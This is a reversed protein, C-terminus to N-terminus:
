ILDNKLSISISITNYSAKYWLKTQGAEHCKLNIKIFKRSPFSGLKGLCALKFFDELIDRLTQSTEKATLMLYRKAVVPFIQFSHFCQVFRYFASTRCLRWVLMEQEMCKWVSPYNRWIASVHPKRDMIQLLDSCSTVKVLIFNNSQKICSM